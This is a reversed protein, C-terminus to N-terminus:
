RGKGNVEETKVHEFTDEVYSGPLEINAVQLEADKRSKAIVGYSLWCSITVKYEQTKKM